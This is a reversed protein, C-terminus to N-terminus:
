KSNAKQLVVYCGYDGFSYHSSDSVDQYFPVIQKVMWNDELFSNVKDVCGKSVFVIKEM